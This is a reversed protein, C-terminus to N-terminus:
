DERDRGYLLTRLAVVESSLREKDAKLAANAKELAEIRQDQPSKRKGDAGHARVM